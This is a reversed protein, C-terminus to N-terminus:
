PWFVPKQIVGGMKTCDVCPKDMVKAQPIGLESYIYAPYERWNIERYGFRLIRINCSNDIITFPSPPVFIRKEKVESVGFYGLVEKDSITTYSLNGKVQVPQTNYMGGSQHLNLRMQAWYDYALESISYQKILLSYLHQLRQSINNTYNLQYENYINESFDKTSLPFIDYIDRTIWCYMKSFDPPEVRNMHGNWWYELPYPSHHEFTEIIKYLYYKSDSESAHMDTYFQYGIISSGEEGQTRWYVDGVEACSSFGEFSSEIIAGQPTKVQVKYSQSKDIFAIDVNAVYVGPGQEFYVLESNDSRIVKVNCHEVFIRKPSSIGSSLSVVVEQPGVEDTFIGSVVYKETDYIEIDPEIEKVCSYALMSVLAILLLRYKSGFKNNNKKMFIM